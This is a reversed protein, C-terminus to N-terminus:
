NRMLPPGKDLDGTVSGTSMFAAVLGLACLAPKDDLLNHSSLGGILFWVGILVSFLRYQNQKQAIAQWLLCSLTTLYLFLAPLGALVAIHSYMNHAGYGDFIDHYQNGFGTGFIPRKAIASFSITALEGRSNDEFGSQGSIINRLSSMKLNFQHNFSTNRILGDSYHLVGVALICSLALSFIFTKTKSLLGFVFLIILYLIIGGRSITIFVAVGVFAFICLRLLFNLNLTCTFCLFLLAYNAAMNPNGLLGSYAVQSQEEQQFSIVPNWDFIFSIVPLLTVLGTSCVIILKLINLRERSMKIVALIAVYSTIVVICASIQAELMPWVNFGAQFIGSFTGVFGLYLFFMLIFKLFLPPNLRDPLRATLLILVVLILAVASFTRSIGFVSYFISNLDCTMIVFFAVAMLFNTRNSKM